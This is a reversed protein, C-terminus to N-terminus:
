KIARQGKGKARQMNLFYKTGREGEQYWQTQLRNSLFEGKENLIKNRKCITEDLKEMALKRFYDSSANEVSGQWFNTEERLTNMEKECEKKYNSSIEIAILRITM